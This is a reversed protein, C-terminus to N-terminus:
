CFVRSHLLERTYSPLKGLNLRFFRLGLVVFTRAQEFLVRTFIVPWPRSKFGM